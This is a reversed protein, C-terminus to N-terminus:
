PLVIGRKEMLNRIQLLLIAFLCLIELNKSLSDGFTTGKLFLKFDYDISLSLSLFLFFNTAKQKIM